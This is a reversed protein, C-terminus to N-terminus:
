RQIGAAAMIKRYRPIDRKLRTAFEEPSNAIIENGRAATAHPQRVGAPSTLIFAVLIFAYTWTNTGM